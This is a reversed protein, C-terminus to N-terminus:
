PTTTTTTTPAATTTTTTTPAVTTTTTTNPFVADDAATELPPTKMAVLTEYLRRSGVQKVHVWGPASVGPKMAVETANVGFIDNPSKTKDTSPKQSLTVTLGSATTAVYGKELTLATNSTVTEITYEVGAIILGNGPKTETLFATGTGTVAKSNQTVAVTGTVARSSERGWAPM